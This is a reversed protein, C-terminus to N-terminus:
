VRAAGGAQPEPGSLERYYRELNQLYLQLRQRLTNLNDWYLQALQTQM